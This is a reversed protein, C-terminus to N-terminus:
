EIEKFCDNGADNIADSLMDHPKDLPQVVNNYYWTCFHKLDWSEKFNNFLTYYGKATFLASAAAIAGIFLMPMSNELVHFAPDSSSVSCSQNTIHDIGEQLADHSALAISQCCFVPLAYAMNAFLSYYYRRTAYRHIKKAKSYENCLFNVQEDLAIQQTSVIESVAKHFRKKSSKLTSLEELPMEQAGNMAWRLAENNSDTFQNITSKVDKIDKDRGHLKPRAIISDMANISFTSICYSIMALLLGYHHIRKNRPM